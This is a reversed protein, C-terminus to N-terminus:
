QQQLRLPTRTLDVSSAFLDSENFCKKTSEFDRLKGNIREIKLKNDEIQIKQLELDNQVESRYHGLKNNITGVIEDIVETSIYNEIKTLTSTEMNDVMKGTELTFKNFKVQMENKLNLFDKKVSEEHFSSSLDSDNLRLKKDVKCKLMELESSMKTGSETTMTKSDAIKRDLSVEVRKTESLVKKVDTDINTLIEDLRNNQSDKYM